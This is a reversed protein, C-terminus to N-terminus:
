RHDSMRLLIDTATFSVFAAIAITGFLAWGIRTLSQKEINWYSYRGGTVALYTGFVVCCSVFYSAHPMARVARPESLGNQFPWWLGVIFSALAVALCVCGGIRYRATTSMM